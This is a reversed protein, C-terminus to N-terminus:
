SICVHAYWNSSYLRRHTIQLHWFKLCRTQKWRLHWWLYCDETPNWSPRAIHQFLHTPRMLFFFGDSHYIINSVSAQVTAHERILFSSPSDQMILQKVRLGNCGVIIKTLHDDTNTPPRKSLWLGSTIHFEGGWSSEYSKCRRDYWLFIIKLGFLSTRSTFCLIMCVCLRISRCLMCRRLIM